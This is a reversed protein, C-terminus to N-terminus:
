GVIWKLDDMLASGTQRQTSRARHNTRQAAHLSEMPNHPTRAQRARAFHHHGISRLGEGQLPDSLRLALGRDDKDRREIQCPRSSPWAICREADELMMVQETTCRLAGPLLRVALWIGTPESGQGEAQKWLAPNPENALYCRVAPIDAQWGLTFVNAGEMTIYLDAIEGGGAAVVPKLIAIADDDVESRPSIREDGSNLTIHILADLM